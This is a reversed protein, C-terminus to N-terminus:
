GEKLGRSPPSGTQAGAKASACLSNFIHEGIQFGGQTGRKREGDSERQQEAQGIREREGADALRQKRGLRVAAQDDLLPLDDAGLQNALGKGAVAIEVA